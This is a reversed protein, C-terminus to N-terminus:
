NISTYKMSNKSFSKKNNPISSLKEPKLNLKTINRQPKNYNKAM